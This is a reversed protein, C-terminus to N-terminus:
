ADVEDKAADATETEPVFKTALPALIGFLNTAAVLAFFGALAIWVPTGIVGIEVFSLMSGSFFLMWGFAKVQLPIEDEAFSLMSSLPTESPEPADRDDLGQRLLSRVAESRSEFGESEEYEAFQQYLPSDEDIQAAVYQKEGM